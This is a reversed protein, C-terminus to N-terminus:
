AFNTDVFLNDSESESASFLEGASMKQEIARKAETKEEENNSDLSNRWRRYRVGLKDYSVPHQWTSAGRQMRDQQGVVLVTDESLVQAAISKWFIDIGPLHKTWKLAEMDLCMRYLLRSKGPGAPICVHLQHMHNQCDNVDVNLAAQGIKVLGIESTVMCPPGFAMDIPYPDWHGSLLKHPHFKVAEPVSWGKAFTSTHTFPAHALDLLNEILLGHDVPVEMEIEAHVTYDKPPETFDPVVEDPTNSGPYMWIIGHKISIPMVDGAQSRGIYAGGKKTMSYTEGFMEFNSSMGESPSKSIFEVPIWHEKLGEELALSSHLERQAKTFVDVKESNAGVKQTVADLTEKLQTVSAQAWQLKERMQEVMKARESAALTNVLDEPRNTTGALSNIGVDSGTRLHSIRTRASGPTVSRRTRGRPAGAGLFRGQVPSRGAASGAILCIASAVALFAVFRSVQM